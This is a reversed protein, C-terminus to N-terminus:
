AQMRVALRTLMQIVRTLLGRGRRYAAVGVLGRGLAVDLVGVCEM